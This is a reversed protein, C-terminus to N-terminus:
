ELKEVNEVIERIREKPLTVPIAIDYALKAEEPTLPKFGKKIRLKDIAVSIREFFDDDCDPDYHSMLKAKQAVQQFRSVCHHESGM